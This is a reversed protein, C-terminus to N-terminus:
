PPLLFDPEDTDDIDHAAARKHDVFPEHIERHEGIREATEFKGRMEGARTRTAIIAVQINTLAKRAEEDRVHKRDELLNELIKNLDAVLGASEEFAWATFTRM